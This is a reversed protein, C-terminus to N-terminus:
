RESKESRPEWSSLREISSRTSRATGGYSCKEIGLLYCANEHLELDIEALHHRQRGNGYDQGHEFQLTIKKVLAALLDRVQAPNGKSILEELNALQDLAHAAEAAFQEGSSAAGRVRGLEAIIRDKEEKWATLKKSVTAVHEKPVLLVREVGKDILRDLEGIRGELRRRERGEDNQQQRVLRDLQAQLAAKRKPQTFSERVLEGVARLVDEQAAANRFCTGAGQRVNTHCVYRRYTYVKGKQKMRDTHGVMRGGCDGCFLLGSLLWDGGGEVPTTRAWRSAKMKKACAAFSDRDVLAPHNDKIAVRDATDNHRKRSKTTPKGRVAKVDDGAIQHYKARSNVNWVFDGLYAPNVLIARVTYRTWKGGRPPPAGRDALERAMDGLSASSGAYRKFLWRVAEVKAEDGLILLGEPGVAYGYPPAGCVWKGEKARALASRTVNKSLSRSFASRGMDQKINWLLRDLDSEFDVWGDQTLLRNVGASMLRDIVAATRISDARSLRDADWVVLAEIPPGQAPNECFALMAMLGPRHEIESGPIGPDEFEHLIEVGHKQCARRAWEKQEPISAEQGSTSMRYYAVATITSM